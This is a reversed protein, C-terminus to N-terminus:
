QTDKVGGMYGNYNCQPSVVALRGLWGNRTARNEDVSFSGTVANSVGNVDCHYAGGSISGVSGTQSYTGQYSCRGSNPPVSFDLTMAIAPPLVVKRPSRTLTPVPVNKPAGHVPMPLTWVTPVSVNVNLETVVAAIAYVTFPVETLLFM